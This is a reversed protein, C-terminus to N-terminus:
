AEGGKLTMVATSLFTISWVLHAVLTGGQVVQTTAVTVLVGSCFGAGKGVSFVVRM